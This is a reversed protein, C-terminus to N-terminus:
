TILQETEIAERGWRIRTNYVSNHIESLLSGIYLASARSAPDHHYKFFKESARFVIQNVRRVGNDRNNATESIRVYIRDHVEALGRAYLHDRFADAVARM